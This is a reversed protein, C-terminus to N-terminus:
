AREFKRFYETPATLKLAGGVGKNWAEVFVWLPVNAGRKRRIQARKADWIKRAWYEQEEASEVFDLVTGKFGHERLVQGMIQWYGWSTSRFMREEESLGPIPDVYTRRFAPEYRSADIRGSSEIKKLKDKVM